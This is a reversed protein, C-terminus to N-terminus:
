EDVAHDIVFVAARIHGPGHQGCRNGPTAIIWHTQGVGHGVEEAAPLQQFIANIDIRRVVAHLRVGVLIVCM